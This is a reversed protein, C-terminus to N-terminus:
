HQTEGSEMFAGKFGVKWNPRAGGLDAIDDLSGFRSRIMARAAAAALKSESGLARSAWGSVWNTPM